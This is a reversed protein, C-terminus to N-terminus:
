PYYDSDDADDDELNEPLDDIPAFMKMIEGYIAHDDLLSSSEGVHFKLIAESFRNDARIFQKFNTVRSVAKEFTGLECARTGIVIATHEQVATAMICYLDVRHLNNRCITVVVNDYKHFSVDNKPLRMEWLMGIPSEFSRSLDSFGPLNTPWDRIDM